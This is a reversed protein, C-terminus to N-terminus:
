QGLSVKSDSFYQNFDGIQSDLPVSEFVMGHSMPDGQRCHKSLNRSLIFFWGGVGGVRLGHVQQIRYSQAKRPTVSTSDRSSVVDAM